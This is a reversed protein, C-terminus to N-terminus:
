SGSAADSIEQLEIASNVEQESKHLINLGDGMVERFSVVFSEFQAQGNWRVRISVNSEDIFEIRYEEIDLIYIPHHIRPYDKRLFDFVIDEEDDRMTLVDVTLSDSEIEYEPFVQFSPFGNNLRIAGDIEELHLIVTPKIADPEYGPLSVQLISTRLFTLRPVGLALRGWYLLQWYEFMYGYKARKYIEMYCHGLAIGECTEKVLLQYQGDEVEQLIEETGEFGEGSFLYWLGAVVAIAVAAIVFAVVQIVRFIIKRLKEGTM